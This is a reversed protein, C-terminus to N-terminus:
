YNFLFETELEEVQGFRKLAGFDLAEKNGMVLLAFDQNSICDQVYSSLDELTIKEIAAILDERHDNHIGLRRLRERNWFLKTKTIRSSIISNLLSEKALEFQKDSKPMNGLLEWIASLAEDMKDSQTGAYAYAFDAEEKNKPIQVGAYASYALSKSERIEQFMISSLGSGFYTNFLRNYAMNKVDFAGTKSIFMLEVQVMDYHVFYVKRETDLQIYSRSVPRALQKDPIQHCENLLELSRDLQPGYYFIRHPLAFLQRVRDVLHAPDINALEEKSYIDRLPSEEGYKAYSMLGNRMIFERNQANNGRRKFISEVYRHYASTDVELHAIFHEFLRMGAEMNQSLGSIHLVFQDEGIDTGYAIGLKYFEAKLEEASYLNTGLLASYNLALGLEKDHKRGLDLVYHLSFLENSENPVCEVVIGNSLRKSQIAKDYDVFQPAIPSIPTNVFKRLFDSQADRDVKVPTIEPKEVKVVGKPSGQRKYVVVHDDTYFTNAFDVLEGKDIEALRENFALYDAWDTGASFANVYAEVRTNGEMNRLHKLRLDNLVAGLMWDEFEGKKILKVQDLILQRVEELSQGERNGGIFYHMGYQNLFLTNSQAFLVKQQQNLNLDMLGAQSNSLLMDILTLMMRHRSNFGESRFGLIVMEAAPGYVERVSTGKKEKEQPMSPYELTREILKGFYKEVELIAEDPVIDGSLMVAMNNPVYYTNFYEHIAKMSPNKLHEPDGITTHQGYPHTPFMEDLLALFMRRNDNDQLRNYEEYVTELETHFLRLVIESFRESELKAWQELANAPINNVYVTQEFSTYANTRQAGLSSVMKDYENPIAFQAARNSVQDIKRYIAEKKALDNQARHREFLEALNDLYPKESNWDRTGYHGTGKFIMHELYHALGTNEEPDYVSGAKVVVRTEIRPEDKNISLYVKLGNKLTYIRLGTSDGRVCRYTYGNSDKQIETQYGHNSTNRYEQRHATMELIFLAFFRYFLVRFRVTRGEFLEKLKRFAIWSISWFFPSM